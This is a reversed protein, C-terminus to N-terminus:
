NRTQVPSWVAISAWDKRTENTSLCTAIVEPFDQTYCIYYVRMHITGSTTNINTVYCTVYCASSAIRKTWHTLTHHVKQVRDFITTEKKQVGHLSLPRYCAIPLTVVMKDAGSEEAAVSPTGRPSMHALSPTAPIPSCVVALPTIMIDELALEGVLPFSVELPLAEM